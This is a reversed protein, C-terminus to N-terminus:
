DRRREDSPRVSPDGDRIRSEIDLIHGFDYAKSRMEGAKESVWEEDITLSKHVFCHLALVFSWGLIPWFSWWGLGLAVNLALLIGVLVVFARLHWRWHRVSAFWGLLPHLAGAPEAM